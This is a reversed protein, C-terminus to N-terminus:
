TRALIGLLCAIEDSSWGRMSATKLALAQYVPVADPYDSALVSVHAQITEFDKRAFPGTLADRPREQRMNDVTGVVLQHLMAQSDSQSIGFSEFIEIGTHLLTTAFNAAIVAAAHYAAPEGTSREVFHAGVLSALQRGTEVAMTDGHGVCWSGELDGARGRVAQLPHFVGTVCGLEDFPKLVASGLRGACHLVIPKDDSPVAAVLQECVAQIADDRVCIVWVSGPMAKIPFGTFDSHNRDTRNWTSVQCGANVLAAKLSRGLAGQGYIAVDLAPELKASYLSSVQTTISDPIWKLIDAPSSRSLGKRVETSSISPLTPGVSCWDEFRCENLAQEHGPRGLVILTWTQVIDDFRYWRSRETLNDAGVVLHFRDESYRNQLMSLTDFTRSPGDTESEIDLVQVRESWGQADIVAHLLETRVPLPAMKKGFVHQGTPVLWVLDVDARSLLYTITFLHALHPPDFAGGYVAIRRTMRSLDLVAKSGRCVCPERGALKAM